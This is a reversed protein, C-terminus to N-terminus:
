KIYQIFKQAFLANGLANFHVGDTHYCLPLHPNMTSGDIYEMSLSESIEKLAAYFQERMWQKEESVKGVTWQPSMVKISAEPYIRALKELYVRAASVIQPLEKATCYQPVGDIFVVNGEDDHLYLDNGGYRVFIYDPKVTDNEDLTREDFFLSGVGRNLYETDTDLAYITPYALSPTPIYASQTSSSGYHLIFKGAAPAVTRYNGLSFNWLDMEANAPLFIELLTEGDNEKSYTFEGICSTEGLVQNATMIGNEYIDFGGFRTYLVKYEYSFSITDADTYFKLSVGSACRGINLFKPNVANLGAFQEDTFRVPRYKGNEEKVQYTHHFLAKM